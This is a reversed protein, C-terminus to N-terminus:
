VVGDATVESLGDVTVRGDRLPDPRGRRAVAANGNGIVVGGVWLLGLFASTLIAMDGGVWGVGPLFVLVATFLSLRVSRLRTARARRVIEAREETTLRASRDAPRGALEVLHVDARRLGGVVVGTRPFARLESPGSSPSRWEEEDDDDGDDEDEDEGQPRSLSDFTEALPDLRLIEVTGGIGDRLISVPGELIADGYIALGLGVLILGEPWAGAVWAALLPGGTIAAAGLVASPLRAILDRREAPTAPARGVSRYGGAWREM